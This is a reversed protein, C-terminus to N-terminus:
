IITECHVNNGTEQYRQLRKICSAIRNYQPKEPAHLVGYRFAGMVLRNRMLAEFKPSWESLRLEEINLIPNIFEKLPNELDIEPLNCSWRWLNNLFPQNM